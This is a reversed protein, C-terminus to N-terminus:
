YDQSMKKLIMKHLQPLLILQHLRINKKGIFFEGIVAEGKGSFNIRNAKIDKRFGIAAGGFGNRRVNEFFNFGSMKCKKKLDSWTESLCLIDINNALVFTEIADKNYHNHFSNANLHCIKLM